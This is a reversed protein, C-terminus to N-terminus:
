DECSGGKHPLRVHDRFKAECRRRRLDTMWDIVMVEPGFEKMACREAFAYTCLVYVRVPKEDELRYINWIMGTSVM